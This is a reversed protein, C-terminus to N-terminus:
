VPFSIEFLPGHDISKACSAFNKPPSFSKLFTHVKGVDEHSFRGAVGNEGIMWGQSKVLGYPSGVSESIPCNATLFDVLGQRQEPPAMVALTETYTGWFHFFLIAKM